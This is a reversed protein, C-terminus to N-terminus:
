NVTAALKKQRERALKYQQLIFEPGYRQELRRIVFHGRAVDQFHDMFLTNILAGGAAGIVPVAQAAVKETVNVSYREAIALILRVLAPAGESELGHQAIYAAAEATVKALMERSAFYGIDAGDDSRTPGGLALVKVCELKVDARTLDAGESRAVDAISRMMITTSIPLEVALALIGFFGGIGGSVASAGKHWWNSAPLGTEAVDMTKMAVELSAFIAKEAANGIATAAKAPLLAVAKEVPSGIVDAARAVFSPNELIAVARELAVRDEESLESKIEEMKM